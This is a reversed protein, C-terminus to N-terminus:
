GESPFTIDSYKERYKDLHIYLIDVLMQRYSAVGYDKAYHAAERLLEALDIPLLLSPHVLNDLEYKYGVVCVAEYRNKGRKEAKTMIARLDEVADIVYQKLTIRERFVIESIVKHLEAPVAFVVRATEKNGAARRLGKPNNFFAMADKKEM